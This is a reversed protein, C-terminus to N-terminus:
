SEGRERALHKNRHAIIDKVSTLPKFQSYYEQEVSSVFNEGVVKLTPKTATSTPQQEEKERKAFETYWKQFTNLTAKRRADYMWKEKWHPNAKVAEQWSLQCWIRLVDNKRKMIDISKIEAEEAELFFAQMEDWRTTGSQTTLDKWKTILESLTVKHSSM